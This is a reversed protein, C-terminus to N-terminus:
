LHVYQCVPTWMSVKFKILAIKTRDYGNDRGQKDSVSGKYIYTHINIYICIYVYNSSYTYVYIWEYICIYVYIGKPRIVFGMDILEEQKEKYASNYKIRGVVFGLNMGWADEPWDFSYVYIM